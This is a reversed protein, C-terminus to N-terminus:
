HESRHSRAPHMHHSGTKDHCRLPQEERIYKACTANHSTLWTDGQTYPLSGNAGAIIGDVFKTIGHRAVLNADEGLNFRVEQVYAPLGLFMKHPLRSISLIEYDLYVRIIRAEAGLDAGREKLSVPLRGCELAGKAEKGVDGHATVPSSDFVIAQEVREPFAYLIHQALGGGLSHGTVVFRPKQQGNALAAHEYHKILRDMHERAREYQNDMPLTRTVWWLNGRSWDTWQGSTGRFAVAVFTQNGVERDWAYYMLGIDDECQMFVDGDLRSSAGETRNRWPTEEDTTRALKWLLENAREDSVAPKGKHGCAENDRYCYASMLAYPLFRASALERSEIFARYHKSRFRVIGYTTVGVVRRNECHRMALATSAAMGLMILVCVIPLVFVLFQTWHITM